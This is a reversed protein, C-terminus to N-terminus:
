NNLLEKKTGKKWVTVIDQKNLQWQKLYKQKRLEKLGKRIQERLRRQDTNTELNIAVCLKLLQIEFKGKDYFPKQGQFFRYLAKATDGKLQARFRLDLGTLFGEAYMKLFYVNLAIKLKGRRHRRHRFSIIPGGLEDFLKRGKGKGKWIEIKVDTKSLREIGNWVANYTNTAPKVGAIRCLEYQTTEFAESQHKKVLTLLSLLVTEDYVSLREGAVTIRGWPTEWMLGREYPREKMQQKSMPFFPSTRTMTTPIFSFMMQKHPQPQQVVHEKVQKVSETIMRRHAKFADIEDQSSFLGEADLQRGIKKLKIQIPTLKDKKAPM